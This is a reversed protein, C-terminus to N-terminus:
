KGEKRTKNRGEDRGREERRIEGSKLRDKKEQGREGEKERGREKNGWTNGTSHLKCLQFTLFALLVTIGIHLEINHKRM